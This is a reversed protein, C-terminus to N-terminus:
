SKKQNQDNKGREGNGGGIDNQLRLLFTKRWTTQNTLKWSGVSIESQQSPQM